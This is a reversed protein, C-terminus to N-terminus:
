PPTWQGNVWRFKGKPLKYVKNPERKAPDLPAPEEGEDYVGLDPRHQTDPLNLRNQDHQAWREKIAQLDQTAVPVPASGDPQPVLLKGTPKGTACPKYFPVPGTEPTLSEHYLVPNLDPEVTKGKYLLRSTDNKLSQEEQRFQSWRRVANAGHAKVGTSEWSNFIQNPLQGAVGQSLQQRRELYGKDGPFLGESALQGDIGILTDKDDMADQKLKMGEDYKRDRWKDDREKDEVSKALREGALQLSQIKYGSNLEQTRAALEFKAADMERDQQMKQAKLAYLALQNDYYQQKANSNAHATWANTGEKFGTMVAGAIDPSDPMQPQVSPSYENAM